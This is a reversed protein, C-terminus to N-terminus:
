IGIFNRAGQIWGAVEEKTDSVFEATAEGAENLGSAVTEYANSFFRAIAARNDARMKAEAIKEMLAEDRKDRVEAYYVDKPQRSDARGCGNLTTATLGEELVDPDIDPNQSKLNELIESNEVSLERRCQSIKSLNGAAM